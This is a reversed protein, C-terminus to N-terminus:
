AARRRYAIVLGLAGLGFLAYTSPEPVVQLNAIQFIGDEAGGRINNLNLEFSANQQNLVYFGQSLFNDPDTLAFPNNEIEM